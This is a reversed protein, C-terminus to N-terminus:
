EAVFAHSVSGHSAAVVYPGIASQFVAATVRMAPRNGTADVNLSSMLLHFTALTDLMSETRGLRHPKNM